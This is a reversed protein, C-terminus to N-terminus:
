TYPWRILTIEVNKGSAKQQSSVPKRAAQHAPLVQELIVRASRWEDASPASGDAHITQSEARELFLQAISEDDPSAALKKRIKALAKNLQLQGAADLPPQDLMGFHRVAELYQYLAGAYFKTSDLEEALKIASNLAIFRPHLDISKPPQFAANARAQLALLEPLFSRLPFARKGSTLALTACFRAFDAEGEAQGMYFLGEAPGKATAFGRAGDLLPISKGQAAEALARVAAPAKEWKRGRAERDWAALRVSEAGWASEFEAPGSEALGARDVIVRAGGLLDEAQALNELSLYLHGADAARAANELSTGVMTGVQAFDPNTVPKDKLVQQLRAIEARIGAAEDQAAAPLTLALITFLAILHIRKRLLELLTERRFLWIIERQGHRGSSADRGDGVALANM